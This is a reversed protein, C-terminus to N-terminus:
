GAPPMNRVGPTTHAAYTVAKKNVNNDWPM